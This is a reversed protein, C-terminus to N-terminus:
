RTEWRRVELRGDLHLESALQEIRRRLTANDSYYVVSGIEAARRYARLIAKLRRARKSTLELEVAVARGSARVLVLDPFHRRPLDAATDVLRVSYRTEGSAEASRM